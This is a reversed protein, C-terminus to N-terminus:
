EFAVKRTLGSNAYIYDQVHACTDAARVSLAKCRYESAEQVAWENYHAEARPKPIGPNPLRRIAKLLKPHLQGGVM